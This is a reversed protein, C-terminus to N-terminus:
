VSSTLNTLKRTITYHYCITWVITFSLSSVFFSHYFVVFELDWNKHLKTCSKDTTWYAIVTLTFPETIMKTQNVWCNKVHPITHIYVGQFMHTFEIIINYFIVKAFKQYLLHGILSIQFLLSINNQKRKKAINSLPVPYINHM